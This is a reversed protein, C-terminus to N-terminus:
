SNELTSNSPEFSCDHFISKVAQLALYEDQDSSAGSVGVSGLISGDIPSSILVSGPFNAIQGEMISIMGLMQSIKEQSSNYKDRFKRSSIGLTVSTVAKALAFKPFAIPPCNDMKMSAIVNSNADVVVCAIPNWGKENCKSVISNCVEVAEKLYIKRFSM